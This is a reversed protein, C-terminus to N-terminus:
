PMRLISAITRDSATRQLAVMVLEDDREATMVDLGSRTETHPSRALLTYGRAALARAYFQRVASVEEEESAYMVLEYSSGVERVSALRQSAPPRPLVASDDGPADGDAPFMAFPRLSGDTWFAVFHTGGDDQEAVVFRFGGLAGLDGSTTAAAIREILAVPDELGVDFCAVLGRDADEDRVIGGARGDFAVGRPLSERLVAEVREGLGGDQGACRAQYFDLVRSLPDPTSGSAFSLAQGNLLLTRPAGRRSVPYRMAVDGVGYAVETLEARARAAVFVGVVGVVLTVLALV